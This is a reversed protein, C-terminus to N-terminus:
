TNFSGPGTIIQADGGQSNILTAWKVQAQEEETAQFKWAAKKVERSVFQGLYRGVDHPQILRRRIGILDGSKLVTNVQTSDNALGWRMFKGNELRGAGVNNRFLYVGARAAELRLESQVRAESKKEDTDPSYISSHALEALAEPPIRWRAAWEELTIM